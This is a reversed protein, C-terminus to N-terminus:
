KSEGLPQDFFQARKHSVVRAFRKVELEPWEDFLGNASMNIRLLGLDFWRICGTNWTDGDCNSSNVMRCPPYNRFPMSQSTIEGGWVLMGKTM